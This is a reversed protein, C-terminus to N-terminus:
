AFERKGPAWRLAAAGLQRTCFMYNIGHHQRSSIPVWSRGRLHADASALERRLHFMVSRVRRVSSADVLIMAGAATSAKRPL